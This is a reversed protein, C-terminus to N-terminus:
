RGSNSHALAMGSRFNRVPSFKDKWSLSNADMSKKFQNFSTKGVESPSKGSMGQNIGGRYAGSVMSKFSRGAGADFGRKSAASSLDGRYAHKEFANLEFLSDLAELVMQNIQTM